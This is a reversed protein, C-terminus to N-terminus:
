MATLMADAVTAFALRPLWAAMVASQAICMGVAASSVAETQPLQSVQSNHKATAFRDGANQDALPMSRFIDGAVDLALKLLAVLDEFRLGGIIQSWCGLHSQQYAATAKFHSVM